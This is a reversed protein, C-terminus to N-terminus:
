INYKTTEFLSVFKCFKANEIMITNKFTTSFTVNLVYSECSQLNRM